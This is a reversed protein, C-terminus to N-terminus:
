PKSAENVGEYEPKLAKKPLRHAISFRWFNLKRTVGVGDFHHSTNGGVKIRDDAIYYLAVGATQTIGIDARFVTSGACKSRDRKANGCGTGILELRDM